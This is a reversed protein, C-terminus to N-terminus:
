RSIVIIYTMGGTVEGGVRQELDIRYIQGPRLTKNKTLILNLRGGKGTPVPQTILVKGRVTVRGGISHWIDGEPKVNLILAPRPRLVRHIHQSKTVNQDFLPRFNQLDLGLTALARLEIRRFDVYVEIPLKVHFPNLATFTLPLPVPTPVPPLTIVSVNKQVINNDRAIDFPWVIPDQTAGAFPNDGTDAIALLCSHDPVTADPTWIVPGAIEANGPLVNVLVNGIHHWDSHPIGGNPDAWYFRITANNIPLTDPNHLRAYLNNPQGRVPNQHTTGSSNNCWLDPSLWKRGPPYPLRDDATNDKHWADGKGSLPIVRWYTVNTGYISPVTLPLHLYEGWNGWKSQIMNAQGAASVSWVRGTHTIINQDDRYCIVDGVRIDPPFVQTGNADLINQVDNGSNIWCQRPNFSFGWCNYCRTPLLQEVSHDLHIYNVSQIGPYDAFARAQIDAKQQDSLEFTQEPHSHNVTIDASTKLTRHSM